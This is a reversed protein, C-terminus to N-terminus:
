NNNEFLQNILEACTRIRLIVSDPTDIITSGHALSNRFTQFASLLIRCYAQSDYKSPPTEACDDDELFSNKHLRPPLTLGQDTVWGKEIALEMLKFLGRPTKNKDEIKSRTTLALELTAYAHKEALATFEYEFWCFVFVYLAKEFQKRIEEPVAENLKIESAWLYYDRLGVGTREGTKDDYQVFIKHREDPKLIEDLPKLAM